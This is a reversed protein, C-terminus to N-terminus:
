IRKKRSQSLEVSNIKEFEDQVDAFNKDVLIEGNFFEYKTIEILAFPPIQFERLDTENEFLVNAIHLGWLDGLYVDIEIIKDEFEYFYRNKRIERDEFKEFVKHETENLLIESIQWVTQNEEGFPFKQQLIRTWKKTEPNRISRLRLRTKTIYNDFIQLHKNARTLPEPLKELLFNRRLETKYTKNM